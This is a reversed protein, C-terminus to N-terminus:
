AVVGLAPTVKPQAEKRPERLYNIDERCPASVLNVELENDLVQDIAHSLHDSRGGWEMYSTRYEEEGSDTDHYTTVGLQLGGYRSNEREHFRIFPSWNGFRPQVRHNSMRLLVFHVIGM